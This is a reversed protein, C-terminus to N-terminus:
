TILFDTNFNKNPSLSSIAQNSLAANYQLIVRASLERTFQYNWNSRFIHNTVATQNAARERLHELLYSNDIRLRGAAHFTLTFNGTDEHSFAPAQNTAPNFNV